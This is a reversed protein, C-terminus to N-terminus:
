TWPRRLPSVGSRRAARVGQVPFAQGGQEAWLSPWSHVQAEGLCLAPHGVYVVTGLGLPYCAPSKGTCPREGEWLASM